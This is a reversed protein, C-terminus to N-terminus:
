GLSSLVAGPLNYVSAVLSTEVLEPDTQNRKSRQVDRVSWLRAGYTQHAHRFWSFYGALFM